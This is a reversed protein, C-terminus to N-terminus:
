LDVGLHNGDDGRSGTRVAADHRNSTLSAVLAPLRNLREDSLEDNRFTGTGPSTVHLQLSSSETEVAGLQVILLLAWDAGRFAERVDGTPHRSGFAPCV